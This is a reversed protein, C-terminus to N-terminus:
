KTIHSEVHHDLSVSAAGWSAPIVNARANYATLFAAYSWTLDVASLPTGDARNYQEALAGSSPTYKQQLTHDTTACIEPLPALVYLLLCTATLTHKFLTSLPLSLPLRLHTHASLLLLTSM